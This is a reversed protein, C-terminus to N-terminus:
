ATSSSQQGSMKRKKQCRSLVNMLSVKTRWRAPRRSRHNIVQGEQLTTLGQSVPLPVSNIARRASTTRKSLGDKRQADDTCIRIRSEYYRVTVPMNTTHRGPSLVYIYTRRLQPHHRYSSNSNDLRTKTSLQTLINPQLTTDITYTYDEQAIDPPPRTENAHSVLTNLALCLYGRGIVM